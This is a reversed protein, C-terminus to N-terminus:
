KVFKFLNGDKGNLRFLGSTYALVRDKMGDHIVLVGEKKLVRHSEELAARKQRIEHLVDCMWVVDICEDPLGVKTDSLMTVINSLREKRARRQVVKLQRPFCDLAYVTGKTGVIKAAPITFDGTGCGYDLFSQGQKVLSFKDWCQRIRPGSYISRWLPWWYVWFAYHARYLPNLKENLFIEVRDM